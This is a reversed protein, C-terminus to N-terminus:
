PASDILYTAMVAQKIYLDTAIKAAWDKKAGYVVLREQEPLIVVSAFQRSIATRKLLQERFRQQLLGRNQQHDEQYQELLANHQRITDFRKNADIRSGAQQEILQDMKPNEKVAYNAPSIMDWDMAAPRYGERMEMTEYSDPITIDPIVGKLQTSGGNIRYFKQITLKIAGDEEAGLPIPRQVTGKGLTASGIILGRKYDQIVAAFIESASASLENVMVTLPGNYLAEPRDSSLVQSQGNGNKVQVVPGRGTFLGAMKIVQALSGGGNNRLDIVLGDINAAMLKKLEREVDDACHAGDAHAFDDYFVPLYIYGTKKGKEEIVASRAAAEEPKIEERVIFATVITGDPRRCGIRVTTGKEGRILRVVDTLAMGEVETFSGTSDQGIKVIRDGAALVGNKWAPGGADIGQIMVNGEEDERLQVGIGYFRAAMSQDFAQKEIPPFYDSHPDVYHAIANLYNSFLQDANTAHFRTFLREQQRLLSTRAMQELQANTKSHLTDNPKSQARQQQLLVLKEFVRQQLFRHWRQEREQQGASFGTYSRDPFISDKDNFRFPQALLKRWTAAAEDYRQSFLSTIVAFFRVSDGHLENDLSHRYAQLATIDEQLFVYKRTDLSNVCANWVGASFADDIVPHLYHEREIMRGVETLLRSQKATPNNFLAAAALLVAMTIKMM